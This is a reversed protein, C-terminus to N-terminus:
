SGSLIQLGAVFVDDAGGYNKNKIQQTLEELTGHVTLQPTTYVKKEAKM